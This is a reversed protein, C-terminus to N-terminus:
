GKIKKTFKFVTDFPLYSIPNEDHSQKKAGKLFSIAEGRKRELLGLDVLDEIGHKKM